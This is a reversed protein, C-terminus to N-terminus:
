SNLNLNPQSYWPVKRAALRDKGVLRRDTIRDFEGAPGPRHHQPGRPRTNEILNRLMIELEEAQQENCAEKLEQFHRFLNKEFQSQKNELETFLNKIRTKDPESVFTENLLDLRIKHTDDQLPRTRMFHENRIQEFQQAQEDSLELQEQMIRQGDARQRPAIPPIVKSKGLWFSTLTAINLVVLIIMCWFFMKNKTFYNMIM